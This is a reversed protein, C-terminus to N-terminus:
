WSSRYLSILVLLVDTLMIKSHFHFQDSFGQSLGIINSFGRIMYDVANIRILHNEPVIQAAAASLVPWRSVNFISRLVSILIM